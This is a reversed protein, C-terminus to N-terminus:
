EPKENRDMEFEYSLCALVFPACTECRLIRHGLWVPVAGNRKLTEAEAESIGGEAGVLFSVTGGDPRIRSLVAHLPEGGEEWCFFSPTEAMERAADEFKVPDSVTPVTGRGCQMAANLAIRRRRATKASSSAADPRSIVRSSVVPIIEAAGTEVSKQIIEDFKDGKPICQFLRYRLPPESECRKKSLARAHVADPTIRIIEAESEDGGGAVTIREGPRMRLSRSIHAADEGTITFTEGEGPAAPLFFRPM